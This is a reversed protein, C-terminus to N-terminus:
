ERDTLEDTRDHRHKWQYSLRITLQIGGLALLVVIAVAGLVATIPSVANWLTELWGSKEMSLRNLLADHTLLVRSLVVETATDALLTFNHRLGEGTMTDRLQAFFLLTEASLATHLATQVASRTISSALAPATRELLAISLAVSTDIRRGAHTIAQQSVENAATQATHITTAAVSNMKKAITDALRGTLHATTDQAAAITDAIPNSCGMVVLMLVVILAVFSYFALTAILVRKDAPYLNPM